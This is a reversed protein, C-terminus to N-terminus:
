ALAHESILRKLKRAYGNEGAERYIEMERLILRKAYEHPVRAAYSIGRKRSMLFSLFPLFRNKIMKDKRRAAIWEGSRNRYLSIVKRQNPIGKRIFEVVLFYKKDTTVGGFVMADSIDMRILEVDYSWTVEGDVSSTEGTLFADIDEFTVTDM